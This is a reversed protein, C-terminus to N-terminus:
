YRGLFATMSDVPGVEDGDDDIVLVRVEVRRLLPFTTEEVETEVLWERGGLRVRERDRGTPLAEASDRRALRMRALHNQGVWHAVTRRELSYTQNVVDGVRSTVSFGLVAFVVLAILVEVLTFGNRVM